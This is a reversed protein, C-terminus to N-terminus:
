RLIAKKAWDVLTKELGKVRGFMRTGNIGTETLTLLRARKKDLLRGYLARPGRKMDEESSVFLLRRGGWKGLHKLSNMGMYRTRPTLLIAGRIATNRSGYDLAASAGINAGVLIINDNNFGKRGLYAVGATVDKYLSNFLKPDENAVALGHNIGSLNRSKGYGRFDLALTAFGRRNAYTTMSKWATCDSRHMHLFLMAGTAKKAPRWDGSIPVGDETKLTVLEAHASLAPLFLFLVGAWLCWVVSTKM